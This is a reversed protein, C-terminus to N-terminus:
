AVLVGRARTANKSVGTDRERERERELEIEKKRKSKLLSRM